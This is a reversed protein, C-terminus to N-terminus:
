PFSVVQGIGDDRSSIVSELAEPICKVHWEQLTPDSGRREMESHLVRFVQPHTVLGRSGESSVHLPEIEPSQPEHNWWEDLESKRAYM